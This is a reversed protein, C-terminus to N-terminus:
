KPFSISSSTWLRSQRALAATVMAIRIRVEATRTGEKSLSASLHKFSTVEQQKEGKMTIDTSTNTM